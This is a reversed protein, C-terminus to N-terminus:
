HRRFISDLITENRKISALQASSREGDVLLRHVERLWAKNVTVNARPNGTAAEDLATLDIAM